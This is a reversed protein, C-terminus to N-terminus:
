EWGTLTESRQDFALGHYHKGIAKTIERWLQEKTTVQTTLLYFPHLIGKPNYLITKKNCALSVGIEIHTGERGPLLVIVTEAKKVGELDLLGVEKLIDKDETDEIEWWKFTIEGGFLEVKEALEQAKDRNLWSTSIYFRHKM